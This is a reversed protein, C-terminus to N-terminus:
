MPMVTSETQQDGMAATLDMLARGALTVGAAPLVYKPVANALPLAVETVERGIRQGMTEPGYVRDVEGRRFSPHAGGIMYSAAQVAPNSQSYMAAIRASYADDIGRLVRADNRLANVIQQRM